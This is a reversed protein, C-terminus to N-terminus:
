GREAPRETRHRTEPFRQGCTGPMVDPLRSYRTCAFPKGAPWAECGDFFDACDQCSAHVENAIREHLERAPTRAFLEAFEADPPKPGWLHVSLNKLAVDLATRWAPWADGMSMHGRAWAVKEPDLIGGSISVYAGGERLVMHHLIALRVCQLCLAEARERSPTSELPAFSDTMETTHEGESHRPITLLREWPSPGSPKLQDRERTLKRRM